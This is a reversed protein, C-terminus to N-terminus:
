SQSNPAPQARTESARTSSDLPPLGMPNPFPIEGSSEIPSAARELNTVLDELEGEPLRAYPASALEDTEQEIRARLERGKASLQGDSSTLERAGLDDIAGQWDDTSWGRRDLFLRAEIGESLSFLVLAELGSLGAAALLSVHCDGRHERLTTAAQWLAAVPDAPRPVDKNGAFLPKGSTTAEFIVEELLPLVLSATTEALQHSLLRRLSSAATDARSALLEDPNAYTWAEPIARRVRAPHFNFFTAEVTAPSVRGMPAARSAFYGMWFGQFGHRNFTERMEVCFYAVANLPELRHWLTRSLRPNM